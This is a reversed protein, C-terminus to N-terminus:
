SNQAIPSGEITEPPYQALILEVLQAPEIIYSKDDMQLTTSLCMDTAYNIAELIVGTVSKNPLATITVSTTKINQYNM